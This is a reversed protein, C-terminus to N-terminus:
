IKTVTIQMNSILKKTDNKINSCFNLLKNKKRSIAKNQEKPECKTDLDNPFVNHCLVKFKANIETYKFDSLSNIRKNFEILFKAGLTEQYEQYELRFRNIRLM